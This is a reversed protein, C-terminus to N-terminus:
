HGHPPPPTGYSSPVLRKAAGQRKLSSLGDMTLTARGGTAEYFNYFEDHQDYGAYSMLAVDESLIELMATTAPYDESILLIVAARFNKQSKTHDPIRPGHEAIIDEITYTKIRNATFSTHSGYYPFDDQSLFLEGNEAVWLDPVEEPPILGALYLEIPSYPTGTGGGGAYFGAWSKSQASYRGNEHKALTTIDFGGLVGDASSLGWHSSNISPVIYNAWRHMLEHPLIDSIINSREHSHFSSDSFLIDSYDSTGDWRNFATRFYIVGQLKGASGYISSFYSSLGIGKVDNSPGGDFFASFTYDEPAIQTNLLSPLFILFDFKDSFYEYFRVALDDMGYEGDRLDETLPLVFVNDNYIQQSSVITSFEVPIGMNRLAPIHTNISERSLPNAYLQVANPGVGYRDPAMIKLLPSIDSINNGSFDATRLQLGVLPSLDSIKTRSLRLFTLGSLGSLPSLDAESLDVNIFVLQTLSTAQEIGTWDKISSERIRDLEDQTLGFSSPHYGVGSFRLSVMKAMEAKLIPAGRAKQRGIGGMEPERSLLAEILLRLNPDPIAVVRPPVQKGFHQIFIFFDSLGIKGDADLDYRAEYKGDGQSSGFVRTFILFDSTGVTGDDDFDSLSVTDEGDTNSTVALTTTADSDMSSGMTHACVFVLLVTLYPILFKKFSM